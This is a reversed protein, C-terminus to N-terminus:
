RALVKISNCMADFEVPVKMLNSWMSATRWMKGGGIRICLSKSVSEAIYKEGDLGGDVKVHNKVRTIELPLYIKLVTDNESVKDFKRLEEQVAFFVSGSWLDYSHSRQNCPTLSYYLHHTYKESWEEIKNSVSFFVALHPGKISKVPFGTIYPHVRRGIPSGCDYLRAGPYYYEKHM